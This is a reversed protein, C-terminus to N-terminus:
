PEVAERKIEQAFEILLRKIREDSQLRTDYYKTKDANVIAKALHGALQEITKDASKIEKTM